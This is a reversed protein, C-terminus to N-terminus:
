PSFYLCLRHVLLCVPLGSGLHNSYRLPYSYGYVLPWPDTLKEHLPDFLFYTLKAMTAGFGGYIVCLHILM